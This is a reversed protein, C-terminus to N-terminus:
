GPPKARRHGAFHKCRELGNEVFGGLVYENGEIRGSPDLHSPPVSALTFNVGPDVEGQLFFHGSDNCNDFAAPTRDDDYERETTQPRRLQTAKFPIIYQIQISFKRLDSHTLSRIYLTFDAFRLGVRGM